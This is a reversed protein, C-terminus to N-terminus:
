HAGRVGSTGRRADRTRKSLSTPCVTGEHGRGGCSNCVVVGRCASAKHGRKKCKFCVGGFSATVEPVQAAAVSQMKVSSAKVKPAPEGKAMAATKKSRVLDDHKNIVERMSIVFEKMSKDDWQVRLQPLWAAWQESTALASRARTLVLMERQKTSLFSAASSKLLEEITEVREAMRYGEKFQVLENARDLTLIPWGLAVRLGAVISPTDKM